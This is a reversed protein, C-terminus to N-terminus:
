VRIQHIVLHKTRTMILYAQVMLHFDVTPENPAIWRITQRLGATKTLNGIISVRGNVDRRVEAVVGEGEVTRFSM